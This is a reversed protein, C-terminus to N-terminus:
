SLVALMSDYQHEGAVLVRYLGVMLFVRLITTIGEELANTPFTTHKTFGPDVMLVSIATCSREGSRPEAATSRFGM